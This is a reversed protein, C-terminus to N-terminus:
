ESRRHITCGLWHLCQHLVPLQESPPIRTFGIWPIQLHTMMDMPIIRVATGVIQSPAYGQQATTYQLSDALHVRSTSRQPSPTLSPDLEPVITPQQREKRSHPQMRRLNYLCLQLMVSTNQLAGSYRCFLHGILTRSLADHDLNLSFEFGTCCGTLHPSRGDNVRWYMNPM